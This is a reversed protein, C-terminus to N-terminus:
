RVVMEEIARQLEKVQIPKSVYDNMGAALCMERDGQMANATMAVIHPQRDSGFDARIIRTAELGDMEPMQVDMFVLDYPQRKLAQLVEYGNGAVDARYGMRELMKLALKQNVANDEALLIRLPKRAALDKDFRQEGVDVSKQKLDTLANVIANYLSSQKVPKTLFAAFDKTDVADRWALSTLMILPMERVSAREFKRIERSLMLGDMGPMHMDLVAIDFTAGEKLAKLAEMPGEFAVPKMEWNETQLSLIRRNTENDDVILMRKDHLPAPYSIKPTPSVTTPPALLTFHFVSGRQEESEVWLTGGMLEALRKSIALGLGTGGYKRSTSADVQSFSQFISETRDAPIGIGTDRVAFHIMPPAESKTRYRTVEVVIEGKDTFKVANSLLNVLIQRLRTVDGLIIHPVDSEILVGMELGKESARLALLDVASEVCDRLNFPQSELDMKEAEIKSFDLIDNIIALLADGSTRITEAFEHQDPTLQTDLLLGTMGIIGNMPTRIEHSMSALFTSKARNAAEAALRAEQVEHTREDVRRELTEYLQAADVASAIQTGITFLLDYISESIPRDTIANDVTLIGMQKGKTLLPVALLNRSGVIHFYRRARDSLITDTDRLLTVKGERMIQPFLSGVSPDLSLIMEKLAAIMQPEFNISHAYKLLQASEDVLMIMSRDMHLHTIVSRLSKELLESIDFTASLALGVEYLTIVESVKQQLAVNSLQLQANSQQLADYQEESKDRQELLLAEQRARERELARLRIWM